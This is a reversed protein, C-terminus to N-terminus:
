SQVLNKKVRERLELTQERPKSRPSTEWLRIARCGRERKPIHFQFDNM